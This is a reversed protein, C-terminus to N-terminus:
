WTPECSEGTHVDYACAACATAESRAHLWPHFGPGSGLGLYDAMLTAYGSSAFILGALNESGNGGSPADNTLTITGHQYSMLPLAQGVNQPLFLGGFAQIRGNLPDMTEYVLRYFKVAYQATM